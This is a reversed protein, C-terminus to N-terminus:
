WATIDIMVNQRGINERMYYNGKLNPSNDLHILNQARLSCLYSIDLSAFAVDLAPQIAHWGLGPNALSWLKSGLSSSLSSSFSLINYGYGQIRGQQGLTSFQAAWKQPCQLSHSLHELSLPSTLTWPRASSGAGRLGPSGECPLSSWPEWTSGLLRLSWMGEVHQKTRGSACEWSM